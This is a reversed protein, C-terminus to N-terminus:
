NQKVKGFGREKIRGGVVGREGDLRVVVIGETM